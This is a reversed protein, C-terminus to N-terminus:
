ALVRGDSILPDEISYILVTEFSSIDNGQFCCSTVRFLFGVVMVIFSFSPVCVKSTERQCVVQPADISLQLCLLFGDGFSSVFFLFSSYMREIKKSHKTFGPPFVIFLFKLSLHSSLPLPSLTTIRGAFKVQIGSKNCYCKDNAVLVDDPIWLFGLRGSKETVGFM